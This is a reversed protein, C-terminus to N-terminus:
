TFGEHRNLALKKSFAIQGPRLIFGYGCQSIFLVAGAYSISLCAPPHYFFACLVLESDFLIFPSPIWVCRESDFLDLFRGDM